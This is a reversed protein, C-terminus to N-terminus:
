QGACTGGGWASGSRPVYWQCNGDSYMATGDGDYNCTVLPLGRYSGACGGGGGGDGGDGGGASGSGSGGASGGGGGGAIITWAKLFSPGDAPVICNYTNIEGLLDDTNIPLTVGAADYEKPSIWQGAGWPGCGESSGAAPQAATQAAPQATPLQSAVVAGGFRNDITTTLAVIEDTEPHYLVLFAMGPALVSTGPWCFTDSSGFKALRATDCAGKIADADYALEHEVILETLLEADVLDVLQLELEISVPRFAFETFGEIELLPAGAADRNFYRIWGTEYSRFPLVVISEVDIMMPEGDAEMAEAEEAPEEAAPESAAEDGEADQEEASQSLVPLALLLLAGALLACLLRFHLSQLRYVGAFHM